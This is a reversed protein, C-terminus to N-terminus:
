INSKDEQDNFVLKTKVGTFGGQSKIPSPKIDKRCHRM